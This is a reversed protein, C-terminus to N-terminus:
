SRDQLMPMFCYKSEVADDDDDGDDDVVDMDVYHNSGVSSAVVSTEVVYNNNNHHAAVNDDDDDDEIVIVHDPDSSPPQAFPPLILEKVKIGLIWNRRKLPRAHDVSPTTYSFAKETNDPLLIRVADYDDYYKQCVFRFEEMSLDFKDGGTAHKICNHDGELDVLRYSSM